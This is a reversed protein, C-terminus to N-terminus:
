FFLIKDIGYKTEVKLVLVRDALLGRGGGGGARGVLFGRDSEGVVM